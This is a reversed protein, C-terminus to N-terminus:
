EDAEEDESIDEDKEEQILKELVVEIDEERKSFSRDVVADLFLLGRERCFEVDRMNLKSLVSGEQKGIVYNTEPDFCLHTVSDEYNGHDNKKAHIFNKSIVEFCKFNKQDVKSLKKFKSKSNEKKEPPATGLLRSILIIKTGSYSLGAKKCLNVLEDKKKKSLEQESFM